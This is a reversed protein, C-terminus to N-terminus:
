GAATGGVSGLWHELQSRISVYEEESLPLNRSLLAVAQQVIRQGEALSAEHTASVHSMLETQRHLGLKRMLRTKHNDATSTAIELRSAIQSITLGAALLDRVQMERPTLHVSPSIGDLTKNSM